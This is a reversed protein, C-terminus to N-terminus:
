ENVGEKRKNVRFIIKFLKIIKLKIREYWSLDSALIPLYKGELIEPEIDNYVAANRIPREEIEQHEKELEQIVNKVEEKEEITSVPEINENWYKSAIWAMISYTEKKLNQEELPIEKSLEPRYTPDASNKILEIVEFPIKEIREEDDIMKLIEVVESYAKRKEEEM